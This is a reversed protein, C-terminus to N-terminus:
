VTKGSVRVIDLMYSPAVMVWCCSKPRTTCCDNLQDVTDTGGKTFAYFKIIQPKEKGDDIAKDHLPRSTSLVVNNKKGKSKIKVTYSTLCINKKEKEFHCTASFIERNQTDFLDSQIRSRKKQLTEVTAIFGDLLWNTSEISTYLRKTSITRGTIPQHAEMESVLYKKCDITSKLYYGSNPEAAYPIAKYTYPFRADNLSKLIM